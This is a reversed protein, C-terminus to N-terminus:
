RAEGTDPCNANQRHSPGKIEIIGGTELTRDVISPGLHAAIQEPRLNAILITPKIASYRRDLLHTLIRDEWESEGREQIEDLILLPANSLEDVIDKESEGKSARYSARLRLFLGMATTYRASNHFRERVVEAALQTKGTGRNGVLVSIGGGNAAALVKAYSLQWQDDQPHIWPARYRDDFGTKTFLAKPESPMDGEGPRDEVINPQATEILRALLKEPDPKIM